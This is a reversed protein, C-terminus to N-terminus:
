STSACGSVCPSVVVAEASADAACSQERNVREDNTVSLRCGTAVVIREERKPPFYDKVCFAPFKLIYFLMVIDRFM